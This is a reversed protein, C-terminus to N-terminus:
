EPNVELTLFITHQVEVDDINEIAEIELVYLDAIEWDIKFSGSDNVEFNQQNRNNRYRTGARTLKISVNDSLKKGNFLATITTAEGVFLENPHTSFQLELGSGKLELVKHSLTNRTVFTKLSPILRIKKIEKAGEPLTDLNYPGFQKGADGNKSKYSIYQVPPHSTEIAYTGDETLVTATVSKNGLNVIPSDFYENGSPTSVKLKVSAGWQRMEAEGPSQPETAYEVKKGMQVLSLPIGGYARDPHFVDNSLSIDFSIPTPEEGSVITSSPVIWRGHAQCVSSISLLGLLSIRTLIRM